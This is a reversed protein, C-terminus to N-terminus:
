AYYQSITTKEIAEGVLTVSTCDTIRCSVFDGLSYATPPLQQPSNDPNQRIIVKQNADNRGYLEDASKKSVGELLILQQSGILKKNM